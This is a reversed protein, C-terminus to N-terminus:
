IRGKEVIRIVVVVGIITNATVSVVIEKDNAAEQLEVRDNIGM